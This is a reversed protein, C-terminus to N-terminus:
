LDHTTPASDQDSQWCLYVEQFRYDISCASALTPKQNSISTMQGAYASPLVIVAGRNSCGQTQTGLASTDLEISYPRAESRILHAKLEKLLSPHQKEADMLAIPSSLASRQHPFGSIAQLSVEAQPSLLASVIGQMDYQLTHELSAANM